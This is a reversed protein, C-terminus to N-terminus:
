ARDVRQSIVKRQNGGRLGVPERPRSSTRLRSSFTAFAHRVKDRVDILTLEIGKDYSMYRPGPQVHLAVGDFGYEVVFDSEIFM